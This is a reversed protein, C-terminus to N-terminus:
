FLDSLVSRKRIITIFENITLKILSVYDISRRPRATLVILQFPSPLPSAHPAYLKSYACLTYSHPVAGTVVRNGCVISRSRTRYIVLESKPGSVPQGSPPREHREETVVTLHLFVSFWMVASEKWMREFENMAIWEIMWRQMIKSIHLTM